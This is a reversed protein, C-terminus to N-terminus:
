PSQESLFKEIAAQLKPTDIHGPGIERIRGSRDLLFSTPMTVVQSQGAVAKGPDFYVPFTMGYARVFDRVPAEEEGYDVAVVTFGQSQYKQYTKVIDPMEDRCTGCWSAWFNLLVVKGRYDSLHGTQGNLDKLTWDSAATGASNASKPPAGFTYLSFIAVTALIPLILWIKKM